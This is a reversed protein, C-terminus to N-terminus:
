NPALGPVPRVRLVSIYGLGTIVTAMLLLGDLHLWDIAIGGLVGGLFGGGALAVTYCAMLSSRDAILEESCQALYTVAAPGFGGLVLVGVGAIALGVPEVALSLHNALFLGACIIWAGPIALRMVRPPGLRAINPTWLAIGIVLLVVAAALSGSILRPDLAHVLHQGAVKGVSNHTAKLLSPLNPTFAGLVAFAAIWAPIFRRIPGPGFVVKLVARYSSVQRLPLAPVFVACLLSATMYFIAFILFARRHFYVYAFGAIFLGVAYGALNAAEFAASARARLVLSHSTVAALTGLATPVFAAAAVGELLRAAGIRGPALAFSVALLGVAGILPGGILFRRRGFRDALRAMFPSCVLESLSQASGVVGVTLARLHSGGLDTLDYSVAVGGAVAGTRLLVTAILLAVVAAPRSTLLQAEADAAPQPPAPAPPTTSVVAIM